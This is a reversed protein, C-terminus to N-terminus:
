RENLWKAADLAVTKRLQEDNLKGYKQYLKDRTEKNLEVEVKVIRNEHRREEEAKRRDMREQMLQNSRTYIIGRIYDGVSLGLNDAESTILDVENSDFYVSGHNMHRGSKSITLQKILHRDKLLKVIIEENTAPRYYNQALQFAYVDNQALSVPLMKRGDDEKTKIATVWPTREEINENNVRM